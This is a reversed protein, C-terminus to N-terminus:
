AGSRSPRGRAFRVAPAEAVDEALDLSTASLSADLM